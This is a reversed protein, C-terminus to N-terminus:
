IKRETKELKEVAKKVAELNKRDYDGLANKQELLTFMEVSKRYFDLAKQPQRLKEYVRGLDQEAVAIARISMNNKTDGRYLEEHEAVAKEFNEIASQINGAGEQAAALRAYNNALSYKYGEHKPEARTLDTLIAEARSLYDAAEAYKKQYAALEGLKSYSQALDHKALYNLEDRAVTNKAIEVGKELYRRSLQPDDEIYIGGAQFYAFYVDRRIRADNPNAALLPEYIALSKKVYDNLIDYRNQWSLDYGSRMLSHAKIRQLEVNQPFKEELKEAKQLVEGYQRISEEYRGNYSIVKIKNLVANLLDLNVQLDDPNQAALKEFIGVAKEYDALAGEVDSAWWRFDGISNYNAALRRQTEFDDPNKEALNLRIAQAKRYSEIGGQLDGLNAKGPNGQVDGVAEYASALESQLSLDNQSESSLSDLYELARRVVIERAETSGPLREIKPTIEFLLSNSLKRVDEFRKEARDRQRRAVVAQWSTAIIGAILSLVLFVGIVSATKNRAYFKATRYFFTNPRAKVPLGNLYRSIDESFDEVSAYRRAPEKRLATLIINDLDGHLHQRKIKPAHNM